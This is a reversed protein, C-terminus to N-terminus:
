ARFSTCRTRARFTWREWGRYPYLEPFCAWATWSAAGPSSSKRSIHHRHLSRIRAKGRASNGRSKKPSDCMATSGRRGRYRSRRTSSSGSSPISGRPMRRTGNVGLNGHTGRSGRLNLTAARTNLTLSRNRYYYFELRYWNVFSSTFGTARGGARRKTRFRRRLGILSTRSTKKRSNHAGIM